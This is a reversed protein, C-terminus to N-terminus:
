EHNASGQVRFGSFEDLMERLLEIPLGVVNSFSGETKTIFRDGSDQIGYAGAKGAWDGGAIYNDLEQATMRRMTVKTVAHRMLRRRTAAHFLTVGTIVDQTTGMLDSLIRRADAADHPKGYIQGHWAVVTDAGLILRDPYDGALSAAKFYSLAEALDAPRGQWCPITPEDYKPVATEFAIGAERLLAARRPSQSALIIPKADM